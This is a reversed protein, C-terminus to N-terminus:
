PRPGAAVLEATSPLKERDLENRHLKEDLPVRVSREHHGDAYGIPTVGGIEYWSPLDFQDRLRRQGAAAPVYWSTGLGAATAAYTLSGICNTISHQFLKEPSGDPVGPWLNELHRNGAVVLTLPAQEYVESPVGVLDEVRDVDFEPDVTEVYSRDARIANAIDAQRGGDRVLVFDWPQANAASPAQIGAELVDEVVEDSVQEDSYSTSTRWSEALNALSGASLATNGWLEELPPADGEPHYVDERAAEKREMIEEYTPVRDRAFTGEHLKEDLGARSKVDKTRELEPRGLPAATGVHFYDPLGVLDRLRDQSPGRTTVWTSALGETAAGLHVGLTAMAMTKHFLNHRHTGPVEPWWHEYRMDGAVLVTAPADVFERSNGAGWFTPDLFRKYEKTEDSYIRSLEKKKEEDDVVVFHWPQANAPSPANNAATLIARLVDDGYEDSRYARSVRRTETLGVFDRLQSSAETVM